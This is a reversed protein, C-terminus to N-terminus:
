EVRRGKVGGQGNFRIFYSSLAAKKIVVSDGAEVTLLRRPTDSVEWLADGEAIRFIFSSPTLYRVSTVTTELTDLGDDEEEEDDDDGFLGFDPLSFGFLSRRTKRVTEADVIRLDGQDSATVMDAVAADYCALRASPDTMSQCAKLPDLASTEQEGQAAAAAPSLAFVVCACIAARHRKWIPRRQHM